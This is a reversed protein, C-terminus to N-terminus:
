VSDPPPGGSDFSPESPMQFTDVVVGKMFGFETQLVQGDTRINASPHPESALRALLVAAGGRVRPSQVVRTGASCDRPTLRNTGAGTRPTKGEGSNGRVPM